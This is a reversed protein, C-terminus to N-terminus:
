FDEKKGVLGARKEGDYLPKWYAYNAQHDKDCCEDCWCNEGDGVTADNYSAPKGCRECLFDYGLEHLM